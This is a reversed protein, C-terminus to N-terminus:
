QNENLFECNFFLNLNSPNNNEKNKEDVEQEEEDDDDEEEEVAYQTVFRNNVQFNPKATIYQKSQRVSQVYDYDDNEKEFFDNSCYDHEEQYNFNTQDTRSTYPQPETLDYNESCIEIQFFNFILGFIM